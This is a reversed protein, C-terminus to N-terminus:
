ENTDSTQRYDRELIELVEPLEGISCIVPCGADPFLGRPDVLVQFMGADRASVVDTYYNDGVYVSRGPDVGALSAAKLLLRPDPKSLGVEGAALTIVFFGDLGMREVMEDLPKTRNSVLGLVYGAERLDGLTPAVDAPVIDEPQYMERMKRTVVTARDMAVADTAGLMKLHRRAYNAWFKLNGDSAGFQVLDENLEKSDAWYAYTWREAERQQVPTSKVGLEAAIRHFTDVAPPENYRLTGDLDFFIASITYSSPM